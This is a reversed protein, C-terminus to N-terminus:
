VPHTGMVSGRFIATTYLLSEEMSPLAQRTKITIEEKKRKEDDYESLSSSSFFIKYLREAIFISVRDTRQSGNELGTM